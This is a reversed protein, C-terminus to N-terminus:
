YNFKRKKNAILKIFVTTALAVLLLGISAGFIDFFVDYIKSTRGTFSQIYEDITGVFLCLLVPLSVFARKTRFFVFMFTIGVSVGLMAFETIHAAKRVFIHFEQKDIKGHPDIIALIKETIDSSKGNSQDPNELSNSFIFGVILLSTIVFLVICINLKINRNFNIIMNQRETFLTAKTPSPM